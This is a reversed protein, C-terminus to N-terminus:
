KKEKETQKEREIESKLWITYSGLDANVEDITLGRTTEISELQRYLDAHTIDAGGKKFDQERWRDLWGNARISQMWGHDSHIRVTCHRRFCKFADIIAMLELSHPTCEDIRKRLTKTGTQGSVTTAELVAIYSGPGARPSKRSITIYIDATEM